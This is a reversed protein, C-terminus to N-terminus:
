KKGFVRKLISKTKSILSSKKKEATKQPRPGSSKHTSPHKKAHQKENSHPKESRPHHDQRPRRPQGGGHRESRHESRHDSRGRRPSQARFDLDSGDYSKLKVKQAISEMLRMQDPNDAEVLAITTGTKGARGSRGSRHIYDELSQPLDYHVVHTIDDIDIGRSFVDTSILTRIKGEKLARLTKEREQMPLGAHLVALNEVKNVLGDYVEDCKNRTKAFVVSIVDPQSIIKLVHKMKERRNCMLVFHEITDSAKDASDVQIRVPENCYRNMINNLEDPLTASFLLTQKRDTVLEMIQSVQPTFGMDCMRDAEDLVVIQIDALKLSGEQVLDLVRGPTAIILRPKHAKLALIQPDIPVGGYLPISVVATQGDVIKMAEEDIQLALERTPALVLARNVEGKLIRQFIPLLYAMTKGSGTKAGAYVDKGTLIAPIAAEQIPTSQTFSLVQTLNRLILPDALLSEFTAAM